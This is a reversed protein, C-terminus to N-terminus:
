SPRLGGFIWWLLLVVLLLGFIGSPYYGYTYNPGYWTPWGGVALLLLIIIIVLLM